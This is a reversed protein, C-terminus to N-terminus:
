GKKRVTLKKPKILKFVIEETITGPPAPLEVVSRSRLEIHFANGYLSEIEKPGISYPPGSSDSPTRSLIIQLWEFSANMESNLINNQLHAAYRKRISPSLAILAARDYLADIKGIENSSLEFFDGNYLTISPGRYINFNTTREVKFQIDNEQFFAESADESLECGIVDHGQDLLWKLDLSKGCLPVFIRARKRESFWQVLAPEPETQHWGTENRKWRGIWYENTM